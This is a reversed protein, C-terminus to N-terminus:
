RVPSVAITEKGHKPYFQQADYAIKKTQKLTLRFSNPIMHHVKLVSTQLLM